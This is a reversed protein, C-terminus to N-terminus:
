VVDLRVPRRRPAAARCRVVPDTLKNLIELISKLNRILRTEKDQLSLSHRTHPSAAQPASAYEAEIARLRERCQRLAALSMDGSDLIVELEQSVQDIVFGVAAAGASAARAKLRDLVRFIAFWVVMAETEEREESVDGEEPEVLNPKVSSISAHSEESPNHNSAESTM